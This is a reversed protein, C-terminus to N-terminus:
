RRSGPYTPIMIKKTHKSQNQVLKEGRKIRAFSKLSAWAYFGFISLTFALLTFLQILKIGAKEALFLPSVSAFALLFYLTLYVAKRWNRAWPASYKEAFSLQLDGTTNLHQLYEKALVYDQLCKGPNDLSLLYAIEESKLATSGAIAQYGKELAFPHLDPNEKLDSLFEKAFKYDDRLRTKKGVTVDYIVRGVGFIAAIALIFKSITEIDM